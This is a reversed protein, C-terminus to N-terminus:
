VEERTAVIQCDYPHPANIWTWCNKVGPNSELRPRREREAIAILTALPEEDLAGGEEHPLAMMSSVLAAEPDAADTQHVFVHDPATTIVTYLM